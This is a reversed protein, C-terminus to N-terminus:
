DIGDFHPLLITCVQIFLTETRSCASNTRRSMGKVGQIMIEIAM